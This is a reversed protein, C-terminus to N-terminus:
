PKRNMPLAFTEDISSRSSSNNNNNNNNNNDLGHKFHRLLIVTLTLPVLMPSRCRHIYKLGRAAIDSLTVGHAITQSRYHNCNVM